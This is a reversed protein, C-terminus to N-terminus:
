DAKNLIKGFMRINYPTFSEEVPFMSLKRRATLSTNLTIGPEAFKKTFPRMM